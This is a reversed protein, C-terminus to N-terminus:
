GNQMLVDGLAMKSADYYVVVLKTTSPLILIPAITLKKKLEVFSEEYAVDWVCSQGKRTLHTLPM